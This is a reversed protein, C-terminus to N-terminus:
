LATTPPMKIMMQSSWSKVIQYTPILAGGCLVARSLVFIAVRIDIYRKIVGVINWTLSEGVLNYVGVEKVGFYITSIERFKVNDSSFDLRNKLNYLIIINLSFIPFSLFTKHPYPIIAKRCGYLGYM